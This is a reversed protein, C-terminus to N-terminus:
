RQDISISLQRSGSVALEVPVEWEGRTASRLPTYTGSQRDAELVAIVSPPLAAMPEGNVIAGEDPVSLRVYLRNSRRAKNFTRILQAVQQTEAARTTRRDEASLRNADAVLLQLTGTADVPISIPVSKVIEEGRNTRLLVKVATDRGPRARETDLWVREIRATRSQEVADITLTLKEVEVAETANKLLFTIPGAVYASAAGAPQDGTFIDEFAIDGHERISATGRVTFSAPGAGREYSTLVNAVTL